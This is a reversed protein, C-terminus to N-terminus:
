LNNGMGEPISGTNEWSINRSALTKPTATGRERDLSQIRGMEEPSLTFDEWALNERLHLPNTTKPLPILGEQRHWRLVVQAVTRGQAQAIERLVPHELLEQGGHALPFWSELVM